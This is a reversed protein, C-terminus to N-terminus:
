HVTTEWIINVFLSRLDTMYKQLETPEQGPTFLTAHFVSFHIDMPSSFITLARWRNRVISKDVWRDPMMLDLAQDTGIWCRLPLIQNSEPSHDESTEVEIYPVHYGSASTDCEVNGERGGQEAVTESERAPTRKLPPQPQALVVECKIIKTSTQRNEQGEIWTPLARYILRHM